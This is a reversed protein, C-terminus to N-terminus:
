RRGGGSSGGGGGSSRLPSILGDDNGQDDLSANADAIARDAWALLEVAKVIAQDRAFGDPLARALKVVDLENLL